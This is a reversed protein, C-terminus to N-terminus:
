VILLKADDKWCIACVCSKFSGLEDIYDMMAGKVM